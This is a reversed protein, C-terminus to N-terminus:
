YIQKLKTKKMRFPMPSHKCVKIKKWLKLQLYQKWKFKISSFIVINM